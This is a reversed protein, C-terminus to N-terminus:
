WLARTEMWALVEELKFRPCRGHRSRGSGLEYERPFGDPRAARMRDVQRRSLGVIQAFEDATILRPLAGLSGDVDCPKGRTTM